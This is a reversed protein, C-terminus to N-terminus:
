RNPQNKVPIDMDDIGFEKVLVPVGYDVGDFNRSVFHYMSQLAQHDEKRFQMVGKPSDFKMGEMSKILSETDTTGAEQFAKVIASAAAMGGATFFDPPTQFRKMHEKVLWDNMPNKPIKYYYYTAGEMGELKKFAKLASLINGPAYVQIGYREPRMRMIKGVPDGSGAWAIYILKEGKLHKMKQFMRNATATFNKTSFPLLEAGHWIGGMNKVGLSYAEELDKGYAYNQALLMVHTGKKVRAMANAIGDHYANRSTRFVYRNWYKGTISSGVAGEVLLLKKLKEAVPLMAIAVSSSVPGVAIDVKEDLYLGTLAQKGIDPKMQTDRTIVEIEKGLVKMTGKTAYELGMEFGAQTQKGYVALPGSLSTILGIKVKDDTAQISSAVLLLGTLFGVIRTFYGM